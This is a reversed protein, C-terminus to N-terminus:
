VRARQAGHGHIADLARNAQRRYLLLLATGIAVVGFLFGAVEFVM